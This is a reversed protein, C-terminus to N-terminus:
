KAMIQHLLPELKIMEKKVDQIIKLFTSSDKDIINPRQIKVEKLKRTEDRLENNEKTKSENFKKLNDSREKLIKKLKQM